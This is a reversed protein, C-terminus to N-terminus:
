LQDILESSSSENCMNNCCGHNCDNTPSVVEFVMLLERGKGDGRVPGRRHGECVHLWPPARVTGPAKLNGATQGWSATRHQGKIGGRSGAVGLAKGRGLPSQRRSESAFKSSKGLVAM